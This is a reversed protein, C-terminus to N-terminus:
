KNTNIYGQIVPPHDYMFPTLKRGELIKEEPIHSVTDPLGELRGYYIFKDKIKSLSKTYGYHVYHLATELVNPGVGKLYEHVPQEWRLGDHNRYLFQRHYMPDFDCSNQMHWYDGTLHYFWCTYADVSKDSTLRKIEKALNPYFVEDADIKILWEGEAEELALNRLYAFNDKTDDQLLKVKDFSNAIQVTKDTSGNDVVIIEDVAEYISRISYPLFQEEDKVIYMASVNAKM